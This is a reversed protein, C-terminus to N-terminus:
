EIFLYKVPQDYTFESSAAVAKVAAERPQSWRLWENTAIVMWPKSEGRSRQPGGLKLSAAPCSSLAIKKITFAKQTRRRM